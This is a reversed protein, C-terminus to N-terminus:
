NGQNHKLEQFSEPWREIFDVMFGTADIQDSLLKSRRQNWEDKVYPKNILEVAKNIAEQADKYSYMLKYISELEIFNGMDNTGAFSNCRITPTGLLASETAMTQSDGVFLSAYYLLDHIDEPAVDIKFNAFEDPLPSESSIFVVGYKSLEYVLKRKAMLDLGHEGIDHMARWAVFRCIIYKSSETLGLKSLILHNPVFRKPHLYFLEKYSNIRIHKKGLNKKFASPTIIVDSFLKAIRLSFRSRETDAFAIHPKRFIFSNIAMTPSIRGIFVDPKFHCCVLFTKFTTKIFILGKQFLNNGSTNSIVEYNIHFAKLLSLSLDKDIALVKIVHGHKELEKVVYRYQHAWAPHQISLLIKM